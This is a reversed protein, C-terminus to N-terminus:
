SWFGDLLVVKEYSTQVTYSFHGNVPTPMIRVLLECSTFVALERKEHSKQENTKEFFM